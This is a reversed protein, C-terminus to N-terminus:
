VGIAGSVLRIYNSKMLEGYTDWGGIAKVRNLANDAMEERLEPNEYLSLVADYIARSDKAKIIFGELGDTFLDSAGSNETSVVPLGCAMAQAQVLALGEQLSPMVLVSGQSYIEALKYRPIFGKYTFSGSYRALIPKIEPSLGGVLWLEFNKLNLGSLAELLYPIGKGIGINGVYLVRFLADKKHLPRFLSMDVGYPIKILRQDPIGQSLFTKAAFSSPLVMFDCYDYEYLERDIIWPDIKFPYRWKAFEEELIEKQFLIHCSGRDCITISGYQQKAITHTITSFGSLSHFIHAPDLSHSLWRDFSLVMVKELKQRVGQWGLRASFMYPTMLWPYTRVKEQPLQGVKWRPYGTYLRNLVDLRNLQSALDFMHFRGPSALNVTLHDANSM